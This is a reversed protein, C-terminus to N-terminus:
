VYGIYEEVIIIVWHCLILCMNLWGLIQGKEEIINKLDKKRGEMETNPTNADDM